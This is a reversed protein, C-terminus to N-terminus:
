EVFRIARPVGDTGVLLDTKIFKADNELPLNVGLAFLSSRPLDVRVIHGGRMEDEVNGAFNLAYFDGENKWASQRRKPASPKIEERYFAKTVALRTTQSPASIKVPERFDQKATEENVTFAAPPKPSRVVPKSDRGNFYGFYGFSVILAAITTMSAAAPKWNFWISRSIPKQDEAAIRERISDFLREASVINDIEECSLRSAKLIRATM